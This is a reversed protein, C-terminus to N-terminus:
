KSLLRRAKTSLAIQVIQSSNRHAELLLDQGCYGLEKWVLFLKRSKPSRHIGKDWQSNLSYVKKQHVVLLLQAAVEFFMQRALPLTKRTIVHYAEQCLVM